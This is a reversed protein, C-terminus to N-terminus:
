MQHAAFNQWAAETVKSLSANSVSTTITPTIATVLKGAYDEAYLGVNGAIRLAPRVSQTHTTIAAHISRFCLM